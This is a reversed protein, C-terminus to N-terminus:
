KGGYPSLPWWSLGGPGRGAPSRWRSWHRFGMANREWGAQFRFYCELEGSGRPFGLCRLCEAPASPAQAPAQCFTWAWGGQLCGLEVGSCPARSPAMCPLEPGQSESDPEGEKKGETGLGQATLLLNQHGQLRPMSAFAM